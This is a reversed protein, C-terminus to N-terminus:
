LKRKRDSQNRLVNERLRQRYVRHTRFSQSQLGHHMERSIHENGTRQRIDVRDGRGDKRRPRQRQRGELVSINKQEHVSQVPDRHGPVQDGHRRQRVGPIRQEGGRRDPVSRRDAQPQDVRTIKRQFDHEHKGDAVQHKQRKHLLVCGLVKREGSPLDEHGSGAHTGNFRKFSEPGARLM